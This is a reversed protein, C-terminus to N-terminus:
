IPERSVAGQFDWKTEDATVWFSPLISLWVVTFPINSPVSRSGPYLSCFKLFSLTSCGRSEAFELRHGKSRYFNGGCELFLASQWLLDSESYIELTGLLCGRAFIWLILVSPCDPPPASGALPYWFSQGWLHLSSSIWGNFPILPM